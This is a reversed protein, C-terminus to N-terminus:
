DRKENTEIIRPGKFQQIIAVFLNWTNQNKNEYEKPLSTRNQPLDYWPINPYQHHTAHENFNMLVWSFFPLRHVSRVNFRVEKGVTTKYHFIYVLISLIWAFSLLPYGLVWLYIDFGYQYYISYHFGIGLLFLAIAKFQDGWTWGKFAPSIKISVKPPIFLFLIVSVLSHIFLGGMFISIYWLTFFYIKKLPTIKKTTYTDLASTHDDTRNFGHHFMHIKRYINIPTMLPLLLISGILDNTLQNGMFLKRHSAEHGVIYLRYYWLGQFFLISFYAFYKFGSNTFPYQHIKIALFSALIAVLITEIILFINKKSNKNLGM